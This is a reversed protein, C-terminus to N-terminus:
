CPNRSEKEAYSGGRSYRAGGIGTKKVERYKQTKEFSHPSQAKHPNDRRTNCSPFQRRAPLRPIAPGVQKNGKEQLDWDQVAM